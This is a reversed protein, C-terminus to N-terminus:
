NELFNLIDPEKAEPGWATVVHFLVLDKALPNDIFLPNLVIPDKVPTPSLRLKVTLDSDYFIERGVVNKDKKEFMTHPACIYLSLTNYNNGYQSSIPYKSEFYTSIQKEKVNNLYSSIQKANYEPIIDTYFKSNGIYLDYKDLIKIIQAFSIIKYPYKLRIDDLSNKLNKLNDIEKNTNKKLSSIKELKIITSSSSFNNFLEDYEVQPINTNKEILSNLQKELFLDADNFAENFERHIHEASNVITEM